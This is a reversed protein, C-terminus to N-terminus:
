IYYIVYRVKQKNEQLLYNNKLNSIIKTIDNYGTIECSRYNQTANDSQETLTASFNQFCEINKKTESQVFCVSCKKITM